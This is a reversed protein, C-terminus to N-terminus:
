TEPGNSIVTSEADEDIICDESIYDFYVEAGEKRGDIIWEFKEPEYEMNEAGNELIDYEMELAESWIKRQIEGKEKTTAQMAASRNSEIYWVDLQDDLIFDVGFLEFVRDDELM